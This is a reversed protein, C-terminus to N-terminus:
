RVLCIDNEFPQVGVFEYRNIKIQYDEQTKCGCLNASLTWLYNRDSIIICVVSICLLTM